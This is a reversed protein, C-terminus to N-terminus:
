SLAPGAVSFIPEHCVVVTWTRTNEALDEALWELMRRRRPGTARTDLAVFHLPGADSSYYPGRGAYPPTRQMSEGAYIAFDPRGAAGARRAHHVVVTDQDPDERVAVQAAAHEVAREIEAPRNRVQHDAIGFADGQAAERLLRRADQTPEPNVFQGDHVRVPPQDADHVHLVKEFDSHPLRRKLSGVAVRRM